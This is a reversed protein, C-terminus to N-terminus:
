QHNLKQYIEAGDIKKTRSYELSLLDELSPFEKRLPELLVIIKPEKEKIATLTEEFGDFDYIHYNVTYRGPPNRKALAYICAGDGWVFIREQPQSYAQLYKALQYDKEVQGGFYAFYEQQDIRGLAFNLFNQYYPWHPYWWFDFRVAGLLSLFFLWSAVTLQRIKKQFLVVTLLLSFWPAVEMFYHPYPRESLFVGYLGFLTLLAPLFFAFGLQRRWRYILSSVLILIIGRQYLGSNDGGWSSLYGINQMLASRVYPTFAGRQSYYIISILIPLGFGLLVLYLKKNKVVSLFQQPKNLRFVFLALLFGAFDFVIPVKFLFALSFCLGSLFWFQKKKKQEGVLALLVALSAPMIMFIEGNAIRGEPLLSFLAFLSASILGGKQSKTLRRGLLFILWLNISNWLLTILRLWFLSGGALAATLYLLPPKNDHIERYFVLGQNFANGLTLYICEDGYSVPDFLSPIRLLFNLAFVLFLIIETKNKKM